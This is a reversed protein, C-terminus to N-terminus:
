YHGKCSELTLTKTLDNYQYILRHEKDIRRSWFGSFSHKLAEPKGIGSYPTKTMDEILQSIRKILRPNIKELFQKDKLAKDTWVIHKVHFM